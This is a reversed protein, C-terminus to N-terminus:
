RESDETLHYRGTTTENTEGGPEELDKGKATDM